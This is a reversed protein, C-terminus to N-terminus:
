APRETIPPPFSTKDPNLPVSLTKANQNAGPGTSRVIQYTNVGASSPARPDYATDVLKAASMFLGATLAKRVPLVDDGASAVELGLRRILCAADGGNERPAPQLGRSSRVPVASLLRTKPHEQRLLHKDV